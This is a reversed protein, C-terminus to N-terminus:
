IADKPELLFKSDKYQYKHISHTYMKKVMYGLFYAKETFNLEGIHAFFYDSLLYMIHHLSKYKTFTAIYKLATEQTFITGADHISPIFLEM